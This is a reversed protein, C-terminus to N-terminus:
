YSLLRDVASNLRSKPLFIKEISEAFPVPSNLSAVRMVPADLFEFCHESILASIEGGIGGALCDEHLVIVKGTKKVAAYISEEDLPMLTRLDIIEASVGDKKSM